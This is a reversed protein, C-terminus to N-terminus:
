RHLQFAFGVLESPLKYLHEYNILILFFPDAIIFDSANKCEQIYNHCSANLLNICEPIFIGYM